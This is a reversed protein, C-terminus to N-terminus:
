IVKACAFTITIMMMMIETFYFNCAFMVNILCGQVQWVRCGQHANCQFCNKRNVSLQYLRPNCVGSPTLFHQVRHQSNRIFLLGQVLGWHEHCWLYWFDRSGPLFRPSPFRVFSSGTLSDWKSVHFGTAINLQSDRLNSLTAKFM